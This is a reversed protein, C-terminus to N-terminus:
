ACGLRIGAWKDAWSSANSLMEFYQKASELDRPVDDGDNCAVAFTADVLQDFQHRSPDCDCQYPPQSVKDFIGTGDGAALAALDEALGAFTAYPSYLARFIVSRLMEYDLLGYSKETKMPIPKSRIADYLATINREIDKPTPAWFKCDEPGAEACGTLFSEFTKDTDLLNNSWLATSWILIAQFQNQYNDFMSAYYNESDAVGDIVM